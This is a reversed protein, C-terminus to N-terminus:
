GAASKVSLKRVPSAAMTLRDRGGNKAAYLAQDAVEVLSNPDPSWEVAPHCVAGGISATVVGPPLNLRHPICLSRIDRLVQEGIRACGVADTNPLLIVFEEGGYRAALDSTRRAESNLVGAISRLCDDGALHGYEDNFRKFHDLDVILLALPTRERKARGWEERLREDFRRRNAVGTLGDAIAQTELKGELNKQLTVDRTIVVVGDVEGFVSRTVRVTSEVWIESKERHRTRHTVRAEETEGRRLAAIAEEVRPLDEPNIGVLSRTGVLQDPNWGVVRVSSPSAYSIREDPGVRTVMDSSGEALVRFNAEEAALEAALRQGRLLERVLYVGIVAILSVLGLMILTRSIIAQRWPALVEDQTKTALVVLPHRTSRRYAGLRRLGDLGSQFFSVGSSAESGVGSLFSGDLVEPGVDISDNRAMVIGDANFLTITGGAGIDFQRYFEMFYKASITAFVVGAFSGDPHNFRRSVTAIWVGNTNIKVPQGIFADRSTSQRHHQFFELDGVNDGTTGSSALWDGNEDAIVLSHIRKLSEKRAVLINRLKELTEAGTGDTEIRNVAGLISTDLLDFNDDAHQTLLSALNGLDVEAAALTAGRSNWEPVGAMGMVVLCVLVVFTATRLPLRRLGPEHLFAAHM